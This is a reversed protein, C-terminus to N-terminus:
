PSLPQLNRWLAEWCCDATLLMETYLTRTFHTPFGFAPDFDARLHSRGPLFAAIESDIWRFAGDVTFRDVLGNCVDPPFWHDGGQILQGVVRGERVELNAYGCVADRSTYLVEIRYNRIALSEWRAQQSDLTQSLRMVATVDALAEWPYPRGLALLIVGGM